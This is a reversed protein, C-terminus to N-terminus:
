VRGYRIDGNLIWQLESDSFSGYLLGSKPEIEIETEQMPYFFTRPLQVSYFNNDKQLTNNCGNSLKSLAQFVIKLWGAKMSDVKVERVFFAEQESPYDRGSVFWHM